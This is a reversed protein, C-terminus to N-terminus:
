DCLSAPDDPVVFEIGTVDEDAVTIPTARHWDTTAGSEAHVVACGDIWYSLRYSGAQPVTITFVGTQDPQAGGRGENGHAALWVGAVPVGDQTILRGSIQSMCLDTPVRVEIAAEAEGIEILQSDERLPVLRNPGYWLDCGGIRVYMGYSGASPAIAAYTGIADQSLWFGREDNEIFVHIQRDDGRLRLISVSLQSECADEPLKLDLTPLSRTDLDRFQGAKPYTTTLGNDVLWLICGDREFYLRQVTDERLDITFGGDDQIEARRIRGAKHEGKHPTAYIWFGVAPEGHADHLNGSLRPDGSDRVRRGPLADRWEEFETYFDDIEMGFAAVFADDLSTPAVWRRNAGIPQPQQQRFYEVIADAGSREVLLDTALLGLQYQWPTNRREASRLTASTGKANALYERRTEEFSQHGEAIRIGKNGSWVASGELIWEPPLGATAWFDTFQIQLYHFWEHTVHTKFISQRPNADWWNSKLHMGWATGGGSADEELYIRLGEGGLHFPYEPDSDQYAVADEATHWILITTNSFDTEVAHTDAFYDVLDRIDASMSNELSQSIDGVFVVNPMMGTPQLWRLDRNVTVRLADGRRIPLITSETDPEYIQGRVEISVLSKGIGRAVDDLPWEDRGSWAVWNVGSYLTVMGKAPTLPREWEVPDSGSIRIMAAMGPDLTELNGGVESIAYPWSRSDGSWTYILKADPIQEFIDAVAIPEAVWGIFNDGPELEITETDADAAQAVTTAILIAVVIAGLAILSILLRPYSRMESAAGTSTLWRAIRGFRQM